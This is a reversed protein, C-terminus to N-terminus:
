SLQKRKYFLWAAGAILLIVVLPIGLANAPSWQVEAVSDDVTNGQVSQLQMRITQYPVIGLDAFSVGWELRHGPNVEGWPANAVINDIYAGSGDYLYVDVLGVNKLQYDVVVIRDGPENYAGNNNTDILLHLNLAKRGTVWRQVMFYAMSESPNTAFYFSQLDNWDHDSDGFPDPVFPQGVWDNFQGDLVIPGAAAVPQVWALAALFSLFLSLFKRAYHSM